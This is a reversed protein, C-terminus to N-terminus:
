GESDGPPRSAAEALMRQIRRLVLQQRRPNGAANFDAERRGGHTSDAPPTALSEHITELESRSLATEVKEEQTMRVTKRAFELLIACPELCPILSKEAAPDLALGEVTWHRRKLCVGAHCCAQIMEGAEVDSLMTTIRYMGTQRAAFERYHTAPPRNDMTAYWDAIAGPYLHNLARELETTNRTRTLWGSQLNPASKLPRFAGEKTSQALARLEDVAVLRLKSRAEDRDAVHCLEHGDAETRICVQGFVLEPRLNAVFAEMAPNRFVFM